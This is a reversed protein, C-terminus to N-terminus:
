QTKHKRLRRIKPLSFVKEDKPVERLSLFLYLAYFGFIIWCEYAWMRRPVLDYRPTIIFHYLAYALGSVFNLHILYILTKKKM